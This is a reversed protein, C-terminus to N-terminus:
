QRQLDVAFTTPAALEQLPSYARRRATSVRGKPYWQIGLFADVTGTDAPMILNTEGYIALCDTLPMMVDAGMLFSNSKEPAFGTVANDEGHRSALGAWMTTQANTEWVHRWYFQMQDISKLRVDTEIFVGHDDYSQLMGTFGIQDQPNLDYGARFRWQGLNFSDYSKQYLFDHVLGWSFGGDTRQFVGVTTFHQTRGTSEGLLEYVRVANGSATIGTGAQVGIGWQPLLPAAWNMAAQGGLNANVGFDQPQKAGDIALRFYLEDFISPAAGSTPYEQIVHDFASTVDVSGMAPESQGYSLLPSGVCLLFVSAVQAAAICINKM